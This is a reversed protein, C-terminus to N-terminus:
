GNDALLSGSDRKQKNRKLTEPVFLAFLMAAGLGAGAISLVSFQIVFAQAVVGIILPASVGGMDGIFHWLSLFQNRTAEPALDAATTMMTGSSLGNAFGIFAAIIALVMMNPVFLILGIGVGQMLFSPVIAWKRGFRDMVIGAVWFFLMDFAAGFSMIAGITQVDLGLATDAYLPILVRWGERTLMVFLVGLGAATILRYNDRLMARFAGRKRKKPSDDTIHTVNEMCFAVFGISVSGIVFFAIFAVPLGFTGGVWGGIIPGIFNGLRFVGGLVSIARGRIQLPIVVSIYAHRAIAYISFGMGVIFLLGITLWLQRAFFLFLMPILTLWIGILMTGKVGFRSLLWSAPISGVVRGLSTASLMVGVLFFADTLTSAYVPLIPHLVAWAVSILASPIYFAFILRNRLQKDM